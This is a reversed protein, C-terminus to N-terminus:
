PENLRVRASAFLQTVVVMAAALAAYAFLATGLDGIANGLAVATMPALFQALFFTGQWLGVGRGRIALSLMNMVWALFTPILLGCGLSVCVVGFMTLPVGAVLGILVYGVTVLLFGTMLMNSIALRSKLLGFVLTGSAIALQAIASMGGIFGPTVETNLALIDGFKVISVYFVIGLAFGGVLTPLMQKVPPRQGAASAHQAHSTPEFLLVQCALALPIAILYMLFPGRSGLVDGLIGGIAVLFIGSISIAAVQIGLWRERQEDEFYDGILTTAATMIAAETIGLAFRSAIILYLDKLFYPLVGTAAYLVLAIVLFSKRGVRDALWGAAPSFLALCLAPVTMAAPVLFASGQVHAFERALLPIVPVLSIIAMVPMVAAMIILAGQTTGAQPNNNSM